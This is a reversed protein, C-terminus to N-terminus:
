PDFVLRTIYQKPMRPLQRSYINQLGILWMQTQKPPQRVTSNCIVHFGIVGRHEEMRAVQDRAVHAHYLNVQGFYVLM